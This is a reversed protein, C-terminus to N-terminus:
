RGSKWAFDATTTASPRVTVKRNLTGLKEQWVQVMYTGPPINAITFHGDTDTVAYYPNATVYWWGVMWNHADCTVEIVEPKAVTVRIIKKFGPQAMDIVPNVKSMTHISHLIGDSNLIEVSSGMPFAAVHPDYECGKQDFKVRAPQMPEGKSIDTLTVVAFRVGGDRGVVLSQDYLPRKGCTEIDKSVALLVPKSTTGALRVVGKVTGGNVVPGAEYAFVVGPPASSIGVVAAAFLWAVSRSWIRWM